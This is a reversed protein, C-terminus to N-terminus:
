IALIVHLVRAVRSLHFKHNAVEFNSRGQDSGSRVKATLM